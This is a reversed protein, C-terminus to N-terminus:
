GGRARSEIRSATPDGAGTLHVRGPRDEGAWGAALPHRPQRHHHRDGGAPDAREGPRHREGDMRVGRHRARRAVVDDRFRGAIGARHHRRDDAAAARRGAFRRFTVEDPVSLLLLARPARARIEALVTPSRSAVIIDRGEPRSTIFDVVLDIFAPSDEKLDLKFSDARYSAAWVQELTPGRFFWDGVLPLIPDHGAYLQGNVAIVDAEIADAGFIIAEITAEIRGGSNHASGIVQEYLQQPFARQENDFVEYYLSPRRSVTFEEAGDPDVIFNGILALSGGLTLVAVVAVIARLIDVARRWRGRPVPATLFSDLDM